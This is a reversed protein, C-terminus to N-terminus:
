KATNGSPKFISINTNGYVNQYGLTSINETQSSVCEKLLVIKKISLNPLQSIAEAAMKESSIILTEVNSLL